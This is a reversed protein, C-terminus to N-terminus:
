ASMRVPFHTTTVMTASGSGPHFFVTGSGWCHNRFLSEPQLTGSLKESLKSVIKPSFISFNKSASGSDNQGQIRFIKSGPDPISFNPEQILMGSGCCQGYRMLAIGFFFANVSFPHKSKSAGRSLFDSSLFVYQKRCKSVFAM